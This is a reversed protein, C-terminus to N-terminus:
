DGNWLCGYIEEILDEGKSLILEVVQLDHTATYEAPREKWDIFPVGKERDDPGNGCIFVVNTRPMTEGSAVLLARDLSLIAASWGDPDREMLLRQLQRLGHPIKSDVNLQDWIGGSRVENGDDDETKKGLLLTEVAAQTLSKRWKAEGALYRVVQGDEDLAIALFDTGFRGFVTRARAPDRALAFLYREVDEHHRFLFIPVTWDHGGVFEYHETLMGAMVEGFLGRKATTPLCSPYEAHAGPDGADPHLEIGIQEHFHERADMHASEFYPKFAEVLGDDSEGSQELLLHGYNGEITPYSTLWDDLTDGPVECTHM